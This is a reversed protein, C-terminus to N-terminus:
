NVLLKWNGGFYAKDITLLKDKKGTRNAQDILDM